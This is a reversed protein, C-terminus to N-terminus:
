CYGAQMAVFLRSRIHAWRREITRTSVSLLSAIEAHTLGSICRLEAIHAGDPDIRELESIAEDFALVEVPDLSTDTLDQVRHKMYELYEERSRRKRAADIITRHMERVMARFFHVRDHFTYNQSRLLRVVAEHVLATAQFTHGPPQRRLIGDAVGRLREYSSLLFSRMVVSHSSDQLSM